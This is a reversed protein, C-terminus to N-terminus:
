PHFTIQERPLCENIIYSKKGTKKDKNGIIDLNIIWQFEM